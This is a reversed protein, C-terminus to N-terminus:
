HSLTAAPYPRILNRSYVVVIHHVREARPRCRELILLNRQSRKTEIFKCTKCLRRTAGDRAFYSCPGPTSVTVEFDVPIEGCWENFRPLQPIVTVKVKEQSSSFTAWERTSHCIALFGPIVGCRYVKVSYNDSVCENDFGVQLLVTNSLLVELICSKVVWIQKEVSLINRTPRSDM